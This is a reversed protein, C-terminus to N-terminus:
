KVKEMEIQSGNPFEDQILVEAYEGGNGEGDEDTFIYGECASDANIYFYGDTDTYSVDIINGRHGVACSVKIGTIPNGTDADVVRGYKHFAYMVGYCAAVVVPIIATVLWLMGKKLKKIVLSM